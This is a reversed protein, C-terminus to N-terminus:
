GANLARHIKVALHGAETTPEGEFLVHDDVRVVVTGGLPTDGALTSGPRLAEIEQATIRIRSLEAVLELETEALTALIRPEVLPENSEEPQVRVLAANKSVAVLVQATDSGQEIQISCVIPPSESTETAPQLDTHVLRGGTRAALVDSCSQLLSAAVRSMLATQARTVQLPAGASSNGGGGLCGDVFLAIAGADFVLAGLSGSPLAIFPARYVPGPLEEVAEELPRMVAGMFSVKAGRRSLFPAARRIARAIEQGEGEMLGVARRAREGQMAIKFLTPIM